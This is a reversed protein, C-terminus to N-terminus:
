TQGIQNTKLEKSFFFAVPKQVSINLSNSTFEGENKTLRIALQIRKGEFHQKSNTAFLAHFVDSFFIFSEPREPFRTPM